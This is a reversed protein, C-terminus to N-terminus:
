FIRICAVGVGILLIGVIRGPSITHVSLGMLGFHDIIISGVFQGALLAAFYNVAGIRPVVLISMTVFFVGLMGGIWAWWPATSLKETSPLHVRMLTCIIVITLLGVSFNVLAGHWRSGTHSAFAANVGPQFSTAVGALIALGLFLLVMLTSQAQPM